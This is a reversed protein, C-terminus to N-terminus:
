TEHIEERIRELLELSSQDGSAFKRAFLFGREKALRLEELLKNGRFYSNEVNSTDEFNGRQRESLSGKTVDDSRYCLTANANLIANKMSGDGCLPEGGWVQFMSPLEMAEKGHGIIHAAAIWTREELCCCCGYKAMSFLERVQPSLLLKNVVKYSFVAQNGSNTKETMSRKIYDPIPSDFGNQKWKKTRQTYKQEGATFILRKRELYAWSLWGANQKNGLEGLWINRETTQFYNSLEKSGYLPYAANGLTLLYDYSIKLEDTLWHMIQYNVTSVSDTQYIISGFQVVAVNKYKNAIKEVNDTFSSPSRRELHVVILHHPLHCAEILVELHDVDQFAVIVFVLRPMRSASTPVSRLTLEASRLDARQINLSYKEFDCIKDNEEGNSHTAFIELLGLCFELYM